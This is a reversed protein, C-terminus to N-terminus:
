IDGHDKEGNRIEYDRDQKDHTETFLVALMHSAVPAALWFTVILLGLKLLTFGAGMYVMMAIIIFFIGCTDSLASAHIRNLANKFKFNGIVSVALVCLGIGLFVAAIIFRLGEFFM